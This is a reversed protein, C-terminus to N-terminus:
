KLDLGFLKIANNTTEEEVKKLPVKKIETIKKAVEVVYAPENRISKELPYPTLFPCDTEIVINKLDIERILREYSEGYTVIGNLGILYGPKIFEQATKYSGIFSHIIGKQNVPHKQLIELLDDYADWCHLIAPKKIANALKIFEILTKKQIKKLKENDCDEEFHHYDLGIEGIAVVRNDKALELYKDFDFDEDQVHIPHLGVAAWVGYDFEHAITVAKQSTDTNSGVNIIGMVNAVHARKIVKKYDQNFAQFNLHSHTDIFM